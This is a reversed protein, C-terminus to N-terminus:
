ISALSQIANDPIILEYHERLFAKRSANSVEKRGYELALSCVHGFMNVSRTSNILLLYYRGDSESRYLSSKGKFGDGAAHAYDIVTALDDFSYIRELPSSKKVASAPETTLSIKGKVAPGDSSNEFFRDDSLSDIIDELEDREEESPGSGHMIFDSMNSLGSFGQDLDEPDDIKTIMLVITDMSVPIAEIMLSETAEFGFEAFAQDMMDQFLDKTKETGYALESLRIHHGALDSRTLTCKIQNENILEIKMCFSYKFIM